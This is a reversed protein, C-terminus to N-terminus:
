ILDKLKSLLENPEKVKWNAESVDQDNEFFAVGICRMGARKAAKIGNVSDEVVICDKPKVGLKKATHLYIDPSPKGRDVDEASIVLDFHREMNFRKVVRDIWHYPASSAMATKVDKEKLLGIIEYFKELLDARESYIEEAIEDFIEVFRELRVDLGYRDELYDYIELYNMGTTDNLVKEYDVKRGFIEDFVEKELKSWLRESDVVVGDMDFIVAKVNM